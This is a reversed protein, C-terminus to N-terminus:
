PTTAGFAGVIDHSDFVGGVEEHGTGYFRGRIYSIDGNASNDQMFAGDALSINSFELSNDSGFTVASGDDLDIVSSFVISDLTNPSSVDFTVVADGQVVHKTGTNRGIVVGEWTADATPNNVNDRGFSYSFLLIGQDNGGIGGTSIQVAFVSHELWGGYSQYHF